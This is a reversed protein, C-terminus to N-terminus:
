LLTNPNPPAHHLGLSSLLVNGFDMAPQPSVTLNPSGMPQPPVTSEPSLPAGVAGQIEVAGWAIAVGCTAVPWLARVIVHGGVVGHGVTVAHAKPSKMPEALWMPEPAKYLETLRM